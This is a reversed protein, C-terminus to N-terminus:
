LARICFLVTASLPRTETGDASGNSTTFSFAHTHGQSAGSTTGSFAHAHDTNTAAIANAFGVGFSGGGYETGGSGGHVFSSGNTFSHTHSANQNMAGTSGSFTHSHDASNNGTNGSGTHTHPATQAAQVTGVAGAAGSVERHRLFRSNLPPVNFTTSGDGAGWTTGIANFLAAYTTRSVAQGDCALYGNPVASGAYFGLFGIDVSGQGILSGVVAQQGTGKRYFGATADAAYGISPASSTGDPATLNGSTLSSGVDTLLVSKILRLHDDAQNLGDSSAPNSAVLGSIHTATELPM